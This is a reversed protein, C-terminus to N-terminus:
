NNKQNRNYELAKLHNILTDKLNTYFRSVESSLVPSATVFVYRVNSDIQM